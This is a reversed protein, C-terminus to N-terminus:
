RRRRAMFGLGALALLGVGPEPVTLALTGSDNWYLARDITGSFGKLDAPTENDLEVNWPSAPNAGAIEGAMGGVSGGPGGAGSRPNTGVSFSEDGSWNGYSGTLTFTDLQGSTSDEMALALNGAQDWSAAVSYATGAAITGFSSQVAAEGRTVGGGPILSTDNLSDPTFPDGSNHKTLYSLVGNILYLGTGNATGGIELLLVTGTVDAALPTFEVNFTHGAALDPQAVGGGVTSITGGDYVASATNLDSVLVAAQATSAALLIPFILKMPKM